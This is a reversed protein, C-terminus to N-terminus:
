VCRRWRGCQMVPSLPTVLGLYFWPSVRSVGRRYSGSSTGAAALWSIELISAAIGGSVVPSSYTFARSTVVRCDNSTSV